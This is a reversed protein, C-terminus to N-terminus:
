HVEEASHYFGFLIVRLKKGIEKQLKKEGRRFIQQGTRAGTMQSCSLFAEWLGHM